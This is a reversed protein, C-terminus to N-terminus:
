AAATEYSVSEVEANTLPTAAEAVKISSAKHIGTKVARGIEV